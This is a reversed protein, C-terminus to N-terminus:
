PPERLTAQAAFRVPRERDQTQVQHSHLVLQRFLPQRELRRLYALLAPLDRAEGRILLTHKELNPEIALLAVQESGAAEVGQFLADWPWGLQELVQNAQRVERQLAAAEGADLAIRRFGGRQRHQALELRAARAEWDETALRIRQYEALEHGAAALGLALLVIGPWPRPRQPQRFDLRLASM